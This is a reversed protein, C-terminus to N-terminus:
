CRVMLNQEKTYSVREQGYIGNKIHSWKIIYEYLKQADPGPIVAQTESPMTEHIAYSRHVSTAVLAAMAIVIFFLKKM